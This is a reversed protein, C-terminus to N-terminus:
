EAALANWFALTEARMTSGAALVHEIRARVVARLVDDLAGPMRARLAARWAPSFSRGPELFDALYLARGLRDLRESGITHFAVADLLADDDCGEARLRAAAAPGHLLRDPLERLEPPVQERLQAPSEDRLADHLWAAARWRASESEPLQLSEAWGQMLLAVRSIHARRRESVVSWAPLEGAAAREISAAASM